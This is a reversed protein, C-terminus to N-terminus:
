QNKKLKGLDTRQLSTVERFEDIKIPLLYKELLQPSNVEPLHYLVIKKGKREDEEIAIEAKQFIGQELTAREILNKMELLSILRGSIKIMDDLRGLPTVTNGHLEVRDHSLFYGDKDCLEAAEIIKFRDTQIFKLTFLCESKVLLRQNNDTKVHHPSLVDLNKPGTTKASALQSCVETMGFTRIVPWGLAVAKEELADSLFDGGVILYRLHSPATLNMKVLDYVQTPVVTTITVKETELTHVWSLPEWDQFEVVRNQLLHARILVSLGGVHYSPLSLGWVDNPTLAFHSNVAEANTILAHHSLAFGKLESSTTGSSLLIFHDTLNKPELNKLISKQQDEFRPSTLIRINSKSDLDLM